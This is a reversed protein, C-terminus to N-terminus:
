SLLPAWLKIFSQQKGLKIALYKEMRMHKFLHKRFNYINLEKDMCRIAYIYQKAILIVCDFATVKRSSHFSIILDNMEVETNTKCEYWSMLRQWFIKVHECRLFLHEQTEYHDRCFTCRDTDSIGWKKLQKNTTISHCLYRFQFSRLKTNKTLCYINQRAQEYMERDINQTIIGQWKLFYEDFSNVSQVLERYLLTSVKKTTVINKLLESKQFKGASDENEDQLGFLIHAWINHLATILGRYTVHDIRTNYKQNLEDGTLFRTNDEHLLQKVYNVGHSRLNHITYPKGRKRIWSNFWLYQDLVEQKERPEHFTSEAWSISVDKWFSDVGVIKKVDSKKLNSKWLLKGAAPLFYEALVALKQDGFARPIWQSKAALDKKRLDILGAGGVNKHTQLAKLKIKPKGQNWLFDRILRNYKNEYVAPLNGLISMRYYFQSAIFTNIVLVKGLLSMSQNEWSNCIQSAKELMEDYNLELIKDDAIIIGLIVIKNVWKFPQNSELRINKGKISGMRYISTKDYNVKLGSFKRFNELIKELETLSQQDFHMFVTLDDAFQAIKFETNGVRIGKIKKNARIQDALLEITIIFLYGSIPSGQPTARTPHFYESTWGNNITCCKIDKLLIEVWSFFNESINFYQFAKRIASHEISDFAKQSDISIALASIDERETIEMLDLFKRVNTGIYRNEMYGTQDKDIIIPLIRKLRDALLKALIKYDTNLLMIPRWNAIQRPDREKKPLLSIIGYNASKHLKKQETAFKLAAFLSEKIVPWFAKYIEVPLGDAGPCKNNNMSKIAKAVEGITIESELTANELDSLKKNINNNEPPPILNEGETETTAFLRQFFNKQEVLIEKPDSIIENRVQLQIMHKKHYNRKQMSFFYSNNKEGYYYWKVNTKFIAKETAKEQEDQMFEQTKRMNRKIKEQQEEDKEDFAKILRDQLVDLKHVLKETLMNKEKAKRKSYAISESVIANKVAEWKLGDNVNSSSEVQKATEIAENIVNYYEEDQLYSLNARWMGKGRRETDPFFELSIRNHDTKYSAHMNVKHIRNVLADNVLFYDLRCWVQKPRNRSWTFKQTNQNFYRWVDIMNNTDMFAKVIQRAKKHSDHNYESEGKKDIEPNLALNFDGIAMPNPQEEFKSFTQVFFQPDDANPAYINGIMYIEKQFELRVLLFRGETDRHIVNATVQVRPKILLAVGKAASTGHSFFIKRGWENSWVVEDNQTSHTEQVLCIDVKCEKIHRFMERRKEM